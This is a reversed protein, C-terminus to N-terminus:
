RLGGMSVIDTWTDIMSNWTFTLFIISIVELVLAIITMARATSNASAGRDGWGESYYKNAKGANILGIIALILALCNFFVGCVIAVIAWPQWNTHPIPDGNFSPAM